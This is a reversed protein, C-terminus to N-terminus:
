LWTKNTDEPISYGGYCYHDKDKKHMFSNLIENIGIRSAQYNYLLVMLSLIVKREGFEELILNDKIRPFQVQIMQIGHESLQRLSTAACNLSVGHHDGILNFQSSKIIYCRKQMNFASDVVVKAGLRDFIDQMKKYVGYETM